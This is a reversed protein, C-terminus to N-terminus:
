AHGVEARLVDRTAIAHPLVVGAPAGDIIMAIMEDLRDRAIAAPSKTGTKIAYRLAAAEDEFDILAVRVAGHNHWVRFTGPRAPHPAVVYHGIHIESM